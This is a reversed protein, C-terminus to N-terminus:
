LGGVLPQKSCPLIVVVFTEHQRPLDPRITMARHVPM